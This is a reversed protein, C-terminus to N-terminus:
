RWMDQVVGRLDNFASEPSVSEPVFSHLVAFSIYFILLARTIKMIM